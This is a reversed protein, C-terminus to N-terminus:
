ATAHERVNLRGCLGAWTFFADTFPLESAEWRTFFDDSSMRYEREFERLRAVLGTESYTARNRRMESMLRNQGVSLGIEPGVSM